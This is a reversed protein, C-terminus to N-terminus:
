IEDEIDIGYEIPEQDLWNKQEDTLYRKNIIIDLVYKDFYNDNMTYYGNPKEDPGVGYSDEVKWRQVHSDVVNAGTITM